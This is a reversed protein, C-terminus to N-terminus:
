QLLTCCYRFWKFADHAIQVFLLTLPATAALLRCHYRKKDPSEIESPLPLFPWHLRHFHCIGLRIRRILLRSPSLHFTDTGEVNRPFRSLWRENRARRSVAWLWSVNRQACERRNLEFCIGDWAQSNQTHEFVCRRSTNVSGTELM